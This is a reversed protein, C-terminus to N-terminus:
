SKSRFEKITGRVREADQANPTLRLYIELEDAAQRYEGRSWHIGGLYKHALGLQNGGLEIARRLEKEADTYNHFKTLVVGLYMHATPASDNQKLADRM